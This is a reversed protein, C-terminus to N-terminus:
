IMKLRWEHLIQAIEFHEKEESQKILVQVISMMEEPYEFYGFLDRKKRLIEFLWSVVKLELCVAEWKSKKNLLQEDNNFGSYIHSIFENRQQYGLQIQESSLVKVKEELEKFVNRLQKQKVIYEKSQM